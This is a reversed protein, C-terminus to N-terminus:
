RASQAGAVQVLLPNSRLRGTWARGEDDLRNIYVARILYVGPHALRYRRRGAALSRLVMRYQGGPPLLVFKAKGRAAGGPRGAPQVEVVVEPGRVELELRATALDANLHVPERGTNVFTLILGPSAGVPVAGPRGRRELRLRLGEGAPRTTPRTAPRSSTGGTGEGRKGSKGERGLRYPGTLLNFRERGGAVWVWYIGEIECYYLTLFTPQVEGPSSLPLRRVRLPSRDRHPCFVRGRRWLPIDGPRPRHRSDFIPRDFRCIDTLVRQWWREGAPRLPRLRGQKPPAVILVAAVALMPPMMPPFPQM